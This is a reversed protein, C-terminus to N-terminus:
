SSESVNLSRLWCVRLIQGSRGQKTKSLTIIPYKVEHKRLQAKLARVDWATKETPSKTLILLLCAYSVREETNNRPLYHYNKGSSSVYYGLLALNEAVKHCFSLITFLFAHCHVTLTTLSHWKTITVSAFSTSTLLPSVIIFVTALLVDKRDQHKSLPIRTYGWTLDTQQVMEKIYCMAIRVTAFATHQETWMSLEVQGGHNVQLKFSACCNTIGQIRSEWM